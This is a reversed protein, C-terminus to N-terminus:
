VRSSSSSSREETTQVKQLTNGTATATAPDTPAKSTLRTKLEQAQRERSWVEQQLYATEDTLHKILAAGSLFSLYLKPAFMMFLTVLCQFLVTMAVIILLATPSDNFVIVLVVAVVMMIAANYVTFAIHKSENFNSPINRTLIAVVVNFGLLLAEIVILVIIFLSSPFSHDCEYTITHEAGKKHSRDLDIVETKSPFGVGMWVALVIIVLVLLVGVGILLDTNTIVRRRTSNLSLDSVSMRFIWLLRYARVFISGFTMTLGLALLWGRLACTADEVTTWMAVSIASLIVGVVIVYCMSPSANHIPKKKRRWILLILVVIGLALVIAMAVFVVIRAIGDPVKEELCYYLDDRDKYIVDGSSCDSVLVRVDFSTTRPESDFHIKAQTNPEAGLLVDDFVVEGARTPQRVITGSIVPATDNNEVHLHVEMDVFGKLTQNFADTVKVFSQFYQGPEIEELVNGPVLHAPASAYDNGYGVVAVNSGFTCDKCFGAISNCPPQSSEFYLAGGSQGARNRRIATNKFVPCNLALKDAYFVGGYTVARSDEIKSSEIVFKGEATQFLVGGSSAENGTLESDIVEVRASGRTAFVGGKTASNRRFGCRNFRYTGSTLFFGVGGFSGASNDEFKCNEFSMVYDRSALPGGVVGGTSIARNKRFISNKVVIDIESAPGGFGSFVIAGYTYGTNKEFLCDEITLKTLAGGANLMGTNTGFGDKFTSNRILVTRTFLNIIGNSNKSVGWGVFTCSDITPSEGGRISLHQAGSALNKSFNCEAWTVKAQKAIEAVGGNNAATNNFFQDRYFKSDSEDTGYFCAGYTATNKTFVNSESRLRAQEHAYIGGGNGGPSLNGDFLSFQINGSSTGTFHLGGGTNALHCQNRVFTSNVINLWASDTAYIAGGRTGLNSQFVSNQSQLQSTSELFIAGGGTSSADSSNGDQFSTNNLFRVNQLVISAGSSYIAAGGGGLTPDPILKDDSRCNAVTLDKLTLSVGTGLYFGRSNGGCDIVSASPNNPTGGELTLSSVPSSGTGLVITDQLMWTQQQNSLSVTLTAGTYSNVLDFLDSGPSLVESQGRVQLVVGVVLVLFCLSASGWIGCGPGSRGRRGWEKPGSGM